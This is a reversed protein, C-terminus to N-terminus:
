RIAQGDEPAVRAAGPAAPVDKMAEKVWGANRREFGVGERKALLYAPVASMGGWSRPRAVTGKGWLEMIKADFRALGTFVTSNVYQPNFTGLARYQPDKDDGNWIEKLFTRCHMEVDQRTFVLGHDYAAAMFATDSAGYGRHELGVWHNLQGQDTYDWRGAPDWYHWVYHDGNLKLNVRWRRALRAAKDLYDIRREESPTARAAALLMMGVHANKNHPLTIGETFTGCDMHLEHWRGMADWKTIMAPDITKLYADAKAKTEASVDPTTLAVHIFELIPELVLAEGTISNGWGPHGDEVQLRGMLVDVQATLYRLWKEDHSYKYGAVLGRLCPAAQWGLDEGWYKTHADWKPLVEDMYAAWEAYLKEDSMEQAGCVGISLHWAFALAM